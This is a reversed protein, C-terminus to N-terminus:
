NAPVLSLKNPMETHFIVSVMSQNDRGTRVTHGSKCCNNLTSIPLKCYSVRERRTHTWGTWRNNHVNTMLQGTDLAAGRARRNDQKYEHARCTQGLEFIAAHTKLTM